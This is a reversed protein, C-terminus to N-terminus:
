KRLLLTIISPDAKRFSFKGDKNFSWVDSVDRPRLDAVVFFDIDNNLIEHTLRRFKRNAKAKSPADSDSCAGCIPIHRYSRAM